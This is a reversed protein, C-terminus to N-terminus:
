KQRKLVIEVYIISFLFKWHNSTYRPDTSKSAVARGMSGCCSSWFSQNKNYSVKERKRWEKEIKRMMMIMSRKLVKETQKTEVKRDRFREKGSLHM